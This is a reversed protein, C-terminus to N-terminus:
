LGAAKHRAQAVTLPQHRRIVDVLQRGVRQTPNLATMPEQFIMAADRGRMSQLQAESMTRINQGLLRIAGSTVKHADRPLLQLAAMATVSKGSGSEGVVGVVEGPAVHLSVGNLAKVAGKYIPFELHLSEISLVTVSTSSMIL